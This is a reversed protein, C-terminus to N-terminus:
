PSIVKGRPEVVFGDLVLYMKVNSAANGDSSEAHYIYLDFATNQPIVVVSPSIAAMGYPYTEMGQLDWIVRDNGGVEIKFFNIIGKVKTAENQRFDKIGTIAVWRSDAMTKSATAVLSVYAQYCASAVLTATWQDTTLANTATSGSCWALDSYPRIDRVVLDTVPKKLEISAMAVVKDVAERRIRTIESPLLEKVPILYSKGARNM